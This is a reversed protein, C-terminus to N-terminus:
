PGLGPVTGPPQATPGTRATATVANTAACSAIPRGPADTAQSPIAVSGAESASRGTREARSAPQVTRSPSPSARSVRPGAPRSAELRATSTSSAQRQHSDGTRAIQGHGPCRALLIEEGRDEGLKVWSAPDLQHVTPM